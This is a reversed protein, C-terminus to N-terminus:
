GNTPFTVGALSVFTGNAGNAQEWVINGNEEIVVAGTQPDNSGTTNAVAIWELRPPRFGSPLVAIVTGGSGTNPASAVGRLHVVGQVDEAYGPAGYTAAAFASWGNILTLSAWSLAPVTNAMDASNAHNANNANDAHSAQTAIAAFDANLVPKTLTGLNIKSGTVAGNKIKSTTVANNKIQTTGVSNKPLNFAAYSTGGLAVLLAICAVVFAPSPRNAFLTM